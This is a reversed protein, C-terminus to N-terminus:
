AAFLRFMETSLPMRSLTVRCIPTPIRGQVSSTFCCGWHISMPAPTPAEGWWIEPAMYLPTGAAQIRGEGATSGASAAADTTWGATSNIALERTTREPSLEALGFDLLKTSGDESVMANAPKL